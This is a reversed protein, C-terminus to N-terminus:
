APHGGCGLTYAACVAESEVNSQLQESLAPVDGTAGVVDDWSPKDPRGCHWDWQARWIPEQIDDSGVWEMGESNWSPGADPESMRSFLFKIMHRPQELTKNTSTHLGALRELTGTSIARFTDTAPRQRGM